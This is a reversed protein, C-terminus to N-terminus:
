ARSVKWGVLTEPCAATPFYNAPSPPPPVQIRKRTLDHWQKDGDAAYTCGHLRRVPDYDTIVADFFADYRSRPPLFTPLSQTPPSLSLSLPPPPTFFLASEVAPNLFLM